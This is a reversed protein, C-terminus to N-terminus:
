PGGRAVDRGRCLVRSERSRYFSHGRSDTINYACFPILRGEGDVVHICCDRLRYLDLNWADQFAMGSICFSHTRARELFEDWAGLGPADGCCATPQVARPQSWFQSVFRRAKAAGEEALAPKCGCGESPDRHRTWPRLEADAMLVFNGHFSCLGNECGPPRFHEAAIRGMTQAEIASIIEPITIRDEDGPAKPFRGFYSIPQFHVGRITPLGEVGHAIIGGIQDMNVGPVLTPVLIVGINREACHRVAMQKEQLLERGRIKRYAADDVGDFQLFVSALGAEGLRDMYTPDRALRLGNTNIQIFPFGMSRALAVIEPLDDRLTPEGGSLQVNCPGSVALLRSLQAEIHSLPPDPPPDNGADAFCVSCRLNCRQTVELLGTCTHQRHEPCLGCDWPCGREVQTSPYAPYSPIRPSSWTSYAPSGRWVVTEFTGHDPCTKRLFVREGRAIREAPVTALCEPCISKTESLLAGDMILAGGDL